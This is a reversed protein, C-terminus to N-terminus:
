REEFVSSPGIRAFRRIRASGTFDLVNVHDLGPDIIIEKSWGDHTRLTVREMQQKARIARVADYIVQLHKEVDNM